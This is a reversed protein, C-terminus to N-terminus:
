FGVENAFRMHGWSTSLLEALLGPSGRVGRMRRAHGCREFWMVLRLLEWDFVRLESIGGNVM